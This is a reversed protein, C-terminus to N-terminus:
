PKAPDLLGSQHVLQNEFLRRAADLIDFVAADTVSYRISTGEREASVLSRSRLAALHQSLNSAGIEIRQQLESVTLREATRLEEFVRIRIPNGLTRLVDAKFEQLTASM